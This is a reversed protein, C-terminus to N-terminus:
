DRPSPSTYLLCSKIEKTSSILEVIKTNANKHEYGIFETSGEISLSEPLVSSFSSSSRAREKQQLMLEDYEVLDVELGNERAFDATMDVPFGFTDYLKFITKGPIVKGNLDEIESKLLSMGQDLTESFQQEEQLLNAEIIKSEKKLLPHADGMEEILTPVM